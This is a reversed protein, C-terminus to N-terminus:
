LAAAQNEIQRKWFDMAMLKIQVDHKLKSNGPNKSAAWIAAGMRENAEEFATILDRLKDIAEM